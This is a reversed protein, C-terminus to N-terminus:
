KIDNLVREWTGIAKLYNIIGGDTAECKIENPVVWLCHKKGRPILKCKIMSDERFAYQCDM